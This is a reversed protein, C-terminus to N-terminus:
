VCVYGLTCFWLVTIYHTALLMMCVRLWFGSFGTELDIKQQTRFSSQSPLVFECINRLGIHGHSTVVLAQARVCVCTVHM